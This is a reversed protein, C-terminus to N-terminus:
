DSRNKSSIVLPDLVTQSNELPEAAMYNSLDPNWPQYVKGQSKEANFILRGESNFTFGWSKLLKNEDSHKDACLGSAILSAIIFILVKTM